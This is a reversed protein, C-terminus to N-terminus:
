PPRANDQRCPRPRLSGDSSAQADSAAPQGQAWPLSRPARLERPEDLALITNTVLRLAVQVVRTGEAVGAEVADPLDESLDRNFHSITMGDSKDIDLRVPESRDMWMVRIRRVCVDESVPFAGPDIDICFAPWPIEVDDGIAARLATTFAYTAVVRPSAFTVHPFGCAAWLSAWWLDHAGWEATGVSKAATGNDGMIVALLADQRVGAKLDRSLSDRACRDFPDPYGRAHVERQHRLARAVLAAHDEHQTRRVQVPPRSAFLEVGEAGVQASLGGGERRESPTDDHEADILARVEELSTCPGLSEDSLTSFGVRHDDNYALWFTDSGFTASTITWGRYCAPTCLRRRMFIWTTTGVKWGDTDIVRPLGLFTERTVKGRSMHRAAHEHDVSLQAGDLVPEYFPHVWRPEHEDSRRTGEYYRRLIERTDNRTTTSMVM